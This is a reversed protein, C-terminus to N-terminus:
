WIIRIERYFGRANEQGASIDLIARTYDDQSASNDMLDRATNHSVSIEMSADPMIRVSNQM